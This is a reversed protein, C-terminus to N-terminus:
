RLHHLARRSYFGAGTAAWEPVTADPALRCIALRDPLLDLKLNPM